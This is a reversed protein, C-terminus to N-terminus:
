SSIKDTVVNLSERLLATLQARNKVFTKQYIRSSHDKVTQLTIFLQDAIEQNTKGAYIGYVVDTERKTINYKVLVGEFTPKPQEAKITYIYVIAMATSFLFFALIFLPEYYAYQVLPTFHSLHILGGLAILAVLLRLNQKNPTIKEGHLIVGIITAPFIFGVLSYAGQIDNFTQNQTIFFALLSLLSAFLIIGIVGIPPMNRIKAAWLLQMILSIIFFPIGMQFIITTQDIVNGIFVFHSLLIKSWLSYYGFLYTLVLYYQLYPPTATLGTPRSQFTIM